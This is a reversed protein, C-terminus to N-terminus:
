IATTLTLEDEGSSLTVTMRDGDSTTDLAVPQATRLWRSTTGVLRRRDDSGEVQLRITMLPADGDVPDGVLDLVVMEGVTQVLILDWQQASDV